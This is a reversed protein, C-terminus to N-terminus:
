RLVVFCISLTRTVHTRMWPDLHISCDMVSKVSQVTDLGVSDDPIQRQRHASACWLLWLDLHRRCLSTATVRSDRNARAPWCNSCVVSFTNSRPGVRARCWVLRYYADVKYVKQLIHHLGRTWLAVSEMRYRLVVYSRPRSHWLCRVASLDLWQHWHHYQYMNGFWTGQARGIMVDAFYCLCICLCWYTELVLQTLDVQCPHNRLVLAKVLWICLTLAQLRMVEEGSLLMASMESILESLFDEIFSDAFIVFFFIHFLSLSKQKNKM